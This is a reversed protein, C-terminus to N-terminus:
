INKLRRIETVVTPAVPLYLEKGTNHTPMATVAKILQHMQM